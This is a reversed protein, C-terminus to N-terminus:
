AATQLPPLLRSKNIGSPSTPKRGQLFYSFMLAVLYYMLCFPGRVDWLARGEAKGGLVRQGFQQPTSM